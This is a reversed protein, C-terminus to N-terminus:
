QFKKFAHNDTKVQYVKQLSSLKDFVFFHLQNASLQRHKVCFVLSHAVRVGSAIPSLGLHEPHILLEQKV